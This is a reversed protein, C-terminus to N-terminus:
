RVRVLNELRFFVCVVAVLVAAQTEERGGYGKRKKKKSGLKEKNSECQLHNHGKEQLTLM